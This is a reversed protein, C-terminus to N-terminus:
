LEIKIVRMRAHMKLLDAIKLTQIILCIPMNISNDVINFFFLFNPLYGSTNYIQFTVILHKMITQRALAGYRRLYKWVPGKEVAGPKKYKYYM